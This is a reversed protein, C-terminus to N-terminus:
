PTHSPEGAVRVASRRVIENWAPLPQWWSWVCWALLTLLGWTSWGPSAESDTGGREVEARVDAPMGTRREETGFLAAQWGEVAGWGILVAAFLTGCLGWPNHAALYGGVWLDVPLRGMAPFGLFVLWLVSCVGALYPDRRVLGRVQDWRAGYRQELVGLSLLWVAISWGVGQSFLWVGAVDSGQLTAAALWAVGQGSLCAYATFLRRDAHALALLAGVVATLGGLVTGLTNMASLDAGYVPVVWRLWGYMGLPCWAAALLASVGMPAQQVCRPWWRHVPLLPTRFVSGLGLWLLWVTSGTDWLQAAGWASDRVRPLQETLVSWTWSLTPNAPQVVGRCWAAVAGLALLGTSWAWWGATQYLCFSAAAHRRDEGGWRGIMGAAVIVSLADFVLFTCADYAAYCGLVCGEWLCITAWLRPAAQDSWWLVALSLWPIWLLPGANLPDYGVSFVMKLWPTQSFGAAPSTRPLILWDIHLASASGVPFPWAALGTAILATLAANGLVARRLTAPPRKRWSWTLLVGVWPSLVLWLVLHAASVPPFSVDSANM